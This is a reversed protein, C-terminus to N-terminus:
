QFVYLICVPPKTGRLEESTYIRVTITSKDVTPVQKDEIILGPVVAPPYKADTAAAAIRTNQRITDLPM